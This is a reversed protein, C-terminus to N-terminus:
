RRGCGSLFIRVCRDVHADLERGALAREGYLRRSVPGSVVLDLFHEADKRADEIQLEGLKAWRGLRRALAAQLPRGATEMFINELGPFKHGESIGLRGTFIPGDQLIWRLTRASFTTLWEDPLESPIRRWDVAGRWQAAIRRVVAELLAEKSPFYRFMTAKSGGFAMTIRNTSAAEFGRAIFEAQAADLIRAGVIEPDRSIPAKLPARPM